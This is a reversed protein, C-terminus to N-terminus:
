IKILTTLSGPMPAPLNFTTAGDGEGHETGIAGFLAPYEERGVESEDAVLWGAQPITSATLKIDGPKWTPEATLPRRAAPPDPLDFPDADTVIDVVVYDGDDMESLVVTDEVEVGNWHHYQEVWRGLTLDDAHLVVSSGHLEVEWPDIDLVTGFIPRSERDKAVRDNFSRISRAVHRTAHRSM